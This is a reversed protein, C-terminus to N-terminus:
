MNDQTGFPEYTRHEHQQINILLLVLIIFKHTQKLM